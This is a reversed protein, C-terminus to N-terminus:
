NELKRNIEELERLKEEELKQMKERHKAEQANRLQEDHYQQELAAERHRRDEDLRYMEWAMRSKREEELRKQEGDRRKQEDYMQLAEKVSSARRRKIIDILYDVIETKCDAKDLINIKEINCWHEDISQQIQRITDNNTNIKGKSEESQMQFAARMRKENIQRANQDDMHAQDLRRLEEQSTRIVKERHNDIFRIIASCIFLLIMFVFFPVIYMLLKPMCVFTFIYVMLLFIVLLGIIIYGM